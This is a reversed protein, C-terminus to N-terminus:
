EGRRKDENHRRADLLMIGAWIEARKNDWEIRRKRRVWWVAIGWVILAEALAAIVWSALAEVM